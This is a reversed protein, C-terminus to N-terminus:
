NLWTGEMVIVGQRLVADEFLETNTTCLYTHRVPAGFGNPFDVYGNVHIVNPGENRDANPGETNTRVFEAGGPFKAQDLTADHCATIAEKERLHDGIAVVVMGFVFFLAVAAAVAVLATTIIGAPRRLFSRETTPSPRKNFPTWVPERSM